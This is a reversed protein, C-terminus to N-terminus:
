PSLSPYLGSVCHSTERCVGVQLSSLSTIMLGLKLTARSWPLDGAVLQDLLKEVPHRWECPNHVNVNSVNEDEQPSFKKGNRTATVQCHLLVLISNETLIYAYEYGVTVASRVFNKREENLEEAHLSVPLGPTLSLSM